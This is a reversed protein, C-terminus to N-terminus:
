SHSSRQFTNPKCCAKTLLCSIKVIIDVQKQESPRNIMQSSKERWRTLFSTFTEGNRQKSTELERWTVDVKINYRYQKNFENCIDECAGINTLDLSIFWKLAAGTLSQQFLQALLDNSFGHPNLAGMYMKLHTKPCTTGDFKDMSPMFFKPPLRAKPFLSLSDLDVGDKTKIAVLSKELTEIRERMRQTEPDDHLIQDDYNPNPENGFKATLRTEQATLAETLKTEFTAAQTNLLARIDDITISAM